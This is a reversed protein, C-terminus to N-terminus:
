EQEKPSAASPDVGPLRMEVLAGCVSCAFVIKRFRGRLSSKVTKIVMPRKPCCTPCTMIPPGAAPPISTHDITM